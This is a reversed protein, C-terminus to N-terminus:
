NENFKMQFSSDVAEQQERQEEAEIKGLKQSAAEIIGDNKNSYNEVVSRLTHKAQFENGRDLYIDSLLLFAKGMWFPYPTGKSIFDNIEAEAKEKQGNIYHIRSVLFKAEAGQELKTDAAVAKLPDLAERLNGTLYQSKGEIYNAERRWAENVAESQKVEQAARIAEPYHELEYNCRMQGTTAKLRNWKSNAVSELRNFLRLAEEYRGANFTLESARSLAQESFINNPQRAVWTYHEEAGSFNGENYQIEALYFHANTAFSGKPYQDLYQQLQVAARSDKSMYLREAAMYTLSDKESVTMDAGGDLSRTYKFYAEVNNMELYCNKIGMLATKAESTGPHNEVVAKYQTLAAGFDGANFNMLGLQLLAKRYLNSEPHDDILRRYSRTATTYKGLRESARGREFLAEDAYDSEPFEQLLHELSNVKGEPDGRLGQCFAIQYLAYDSEFVRMEYAQRYNKIALSYDTSLYYYDGLRNYADALKERNGDDASQIYNRFHRAAASYDELKFYVYGMNYAADKYEALSFAGPTKLFRSYVEASHNYDGVRYLAEAKWFLARAKLERSYDGNELSLNFYDIAQNYALNNFLELGRYFTVRQYAMWVESTKTEIKEISNIADRYNRTVMFVETLYRYAEANRRSDPYNEIYRDFAKITENFPSYSLEYTLKAYSFLADEKIREDFDFESAAEFAVRAKEKQDLQIYCDGLHYCANQAMEDEGKSANELLPVAKEFQGTHYYCYGLLYNDQRTKPGPTDYYTELYPIAKEYSRLHFYSDGVIKSLESKHDPEVEDIVSVTYNVVEQYKQQKYYIHSVYLPIVRSYTPDGNLKSFGELASQYNERLYMIHAWYYNAPRSYISNKDKVEYFESLAQDEENMMLHAYGNQYQLQTRETGTLESRDVEDYSRMVSAYQKKDFHFRGLNFWARNLYPSEPYDEIFTEVMRYGSSHGAKLASVSKFYVAESFIESRPDVAAQVKEFQRYAANFKGQRFLERALQIEATEAEFFATKQAFLSFSLFILAPFLLLIRITKM